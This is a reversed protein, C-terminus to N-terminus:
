PLRGSIQEPSWGLRLHQRVYERTIENKLRARQRQKNARIGSVTQAYCPLYINDLRKNRSLERSVTSHSRGLKKAISRISLGQKQLGYLLEREELNLKHHTRM